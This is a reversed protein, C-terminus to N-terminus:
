AGTTRPSTCATPRWSSGRTRPSAATPRSPCGSTTWASTKTPWAPTEQPCHVQPPSVAMRAGHVARRPAM